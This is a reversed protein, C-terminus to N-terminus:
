RDSLLADILVSLVSIMVSQAFQVPAILDTWNQYMRPVDKIDSAVLEFGIKLLHDGWQNGILEIHM